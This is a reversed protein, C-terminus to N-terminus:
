RVNFVVPLATDKVPIVRDMPTAVQANEGILNWASMPNRSVKMNRQFMTPAM